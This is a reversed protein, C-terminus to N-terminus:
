ESVVILALELFSDLTVLLNKFEVRGVCQYGYWIDTCVLVCAVLRQDGIGTGTNTAMRKSRVNVNDGSLGGRLGLLRKFISLRVKGLLYNTPCV